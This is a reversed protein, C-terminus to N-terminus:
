RQERETQHTHTHSHTRFRTVINPGFCYAMECTGRAGIQIFYIQTRWDIMPGDRDAARWMSAFTLLILMQLILDWDIAFHSYKIRNSRIFQVIKTILIIQRLITNVSPSLLLCSAAPLQCNCVENFWLAITCVLVLHICCCNQMNMSNRYKCQAFTGIAVHSLWCIWSYKRFVNSVTSNKNKCVFNLAKRIGLINNSVAYFIIIEGNLLTQSASSPSSFFFFINETAHASQTDVINIHHEAFSRWYQADAGADIM